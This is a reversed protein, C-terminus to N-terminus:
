RLIRCSASSVHDAMRRFLRLILFFFTRIVSTPFNFCSPYDLARFSVPGVPTSTKNITQREESM